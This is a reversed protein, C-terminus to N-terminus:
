GALLRVLAERRFCFIRELDPRVLVRDVLRGGPAEYEVRDSVLTGGDQEAFLHEHEWRRYPGRVQVDVFRCPPEWAVIESQWRIPVGRLRLRYDIVTGVHMEVPSPTLVSFRLWPPTLAELNHANAYFAYAVDRTIPLWLESQYTAMLYLIGSQSM